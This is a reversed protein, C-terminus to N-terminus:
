KVHIQVEFAPFSIDSVFLFDSISYFTKGWLESRNLKRGDRYNKKM